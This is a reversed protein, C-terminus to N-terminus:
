KGVKEIIADYVFDRAIRRVRIRFDHFLFQANEKLKDEPINLKILDDVTGATEPVSKLITERLKAIPTGGGVRWRTEGLTVVMEPPRDFEDEIEGVLSEIINELAIIGIPHNSIDTVVAIHSYERMMKNLALNLPMTMPLSIMPRCNGKLSPDSPNIHLATVIDKFNVYGIIKDWEESNVLPYRTHKHVHAVLFADTLTMNHMLAIVDEKEIMIDSVKKGALQIAKAIVSAQEHSISNDLEASGSLLMIEDAITNPSKQKKREFPSNLIEILTTLPRFVRVLIFLPLASVKALIINFRVGLTKPLIETYQIMILSYVLSFVWLWEHGFLDDFKAGSVSAGITHALTNVILIVAIPKQINSKFRRWISATKPSKQSIEAINSNSLSLLCAEMLSCFFSILLSISITLILLVM